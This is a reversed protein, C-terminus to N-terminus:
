SSAEAEAKAAAMEEERKLSEQALQEMLAEDFEVEEETFDQELDANQALFDFVLNRLLTTEVKPRIAAEDFEEGEQIDKKLNQMQEEIQFDPVEIAELRSIEDTAMSVRFDKVIDDKVIEKYKLFNDGTIQKKIEEDAVGNDRMETMMMAFKERAQNTVLTDPVEVDLREALADAIAKNRAPVFEKADEEDVAKRLESMLTEATLDARVGKAFEDTIEPLTRKSSEQVTVDFIAKKGALTKDKLKEPFSVTITRVDGVKAGVLGEVLGEMYRGEGLIVEVNDGSAANPLPDGKTVGDDEAMFGEMNVVCADGMALETDDDMPALTAYRDRLDKLAIDMREQNFPKRKYTGKLGTYAKEQGELPEKWEIDPWVDCKVVLELPEGSVYSDALDAAPVTLSPQGIPELGHDDKLAPEVLEALLSQIAEVKLANRGGKAAMSNELVQPPIRAGKRFGPITVAKSCEMAAKDYAAKTATGPATITVEVASEPLKNLKSKGETSMYLRTNSLAIAHNNSAKGWFTLAGNSSRVTSPAFSFADTSLPGSASLALAVALALSTFRTM